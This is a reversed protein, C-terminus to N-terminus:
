VVHSRNVVIECWMLNIVEVIIESMALIQAPGLLKLTKFNDSFVALKKFYSLPTYRSNTQSEESYMQWLVITKKIWAWTGQCRIRWITDRMVRTPGRNSLIIHSWFLSWWCISFVIFWFVAKEYLFQRLATLFQYAMLSM